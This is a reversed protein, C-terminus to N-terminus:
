SYFYVNQIGDYSTASLNTYGSTSASTVRRLTIKISEYSSIDLTISTPYSAYGTVMPVNYLETDSGNSSVGYVIISATSSGGGWSDHGEICDISVNKQGNTPLIPTTMAYVPAHNTNNASYSARMCIANKYLGIYPSTEFEGNKADKETITPNAVGSSTNAVGNQYAYYASIKEWLVAGNSKAVVKVIETGSKTFIQTISRDLKLSM